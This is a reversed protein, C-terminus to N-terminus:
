RNSLNNSEATGKSTVEFTLSAWYSEWDHTAQKVALMHVAHLRIKGAEMVPVNLKGEADTRGAIRMTAKTRLDKSTAVEVQVDGCPKGDFLLQIPLSDGAKLGAPDALPVIEIKLGLPMKYGTPEGAVLYTKAFKTYMERSNKTSGHFAALQQKLGEEKLYSEFKAPELELYKPKTFVAFYQSGEKVDVTAHTARGLIRWQNADLAPVTTLRAPDVGQESAPFSDGTHASLLIRSGAVPRFSQPMLYLDHGYLSATLLLPLLKKM